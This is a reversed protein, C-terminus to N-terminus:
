CYNIFCDCNVNASSKVRIYKIAITSPLNFGFDSANTLSVKYQSDYYTINDNSLQITLNTTASVKGYFSINTSSLALDASSSVGNVGTLNAYDFLKSSGRRTITPPLYVNKYIVSFNLLTQDVSTNNRVSFYIYPLDLLLNFTNYQNPLTEFITTQEQTKNLSQYAVIECTTDALLTITATTYLVKEWRGIFARNAQLPIVSYNLTSEM